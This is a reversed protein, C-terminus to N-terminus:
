LEDKFLARGVWPKRGILSIAYFTASWCSHGSQGALRNRFLIERRESSFYDCVMEERVLRFTGFACVGPISSFLSGVRRWGTRPRSCFSHASPNGIM